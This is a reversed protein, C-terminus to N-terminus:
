IAIQRESLIAKSLLRALSCAHMSAYFASPILMGKERERESEIEKREEQLFFPHGDDDDSQRESSLLVLSSHISPHREKKQREIREVSQRHRLQTGRLVCM